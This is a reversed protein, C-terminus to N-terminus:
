VINPGLSIGVAAATTGVNDFVAGRLLYSSPVGCSPSDDAQRESRSYSVRHAREGLRKGRSGPVANRPSLAVRFGRRNHVEFDQVRCARVPASDDAHLERRGDSVRRAMEGAREGRTGGKVINPGLPGRCVSSQAGLMTLSPVGASPM